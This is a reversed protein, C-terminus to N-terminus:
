VNGDPPVEMLQGDDVTDSSAPLTMDCSHVAQCDSASAVAAVNSIIDDIIGVVDSEIGVAHTVLDSQEEAQPRSKVAVINDSCVASLSSSTVPDDGDAIM